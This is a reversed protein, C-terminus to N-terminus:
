DHYKKDEKRCHLCHVYKRPVKWRVGRSHGCNLNVWVMGASDPTSYSMVQCLKRRVKM